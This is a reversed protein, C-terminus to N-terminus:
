DQPPRDGRNTTAVLNQYGLEHCPSRSQCPVVPLAPGGMVPKCSLRQTILASLITNEFYWSRSRTATDAWPVGGTSFDKVQVSSTRPTNPSRLGVVSLSYFSDEDGEQLGPRKPPLYGGARGGYPTKGPVDAPPLPKEGQARAWSPPVGLPSRRVRVVENRKRSVVM